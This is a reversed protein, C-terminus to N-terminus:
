RAKETAESAKPATTEPGKPAAPLLHHEVYGVMARHVEAPATRAREPRHAGLIEIMAYGAVGEDRAIALLSELGADDPANPNKLHDAAYAGLAAELCLVEEGM